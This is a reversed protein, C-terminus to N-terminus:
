AYHVDDLFQFLEEHTPLPDYVKTDAPRPTFELIERLTPLNFHLGSHKGRHKGEKDERPCSSNNGLLDKNAPINIFLAKRIPSTLLFNKAEQFYTKEQPLNLLPLYNNPKWEVTALLIIFRPVPTIMGAQQQQQEQSFSSAM